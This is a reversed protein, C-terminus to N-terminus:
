SAHIDMDDNTILNVDKFVLKNIMGNISTENGPIPSASM